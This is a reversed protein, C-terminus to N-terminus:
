DGLRRGVVVATSPANPMSTTQVLTWALEPEGANLSEIYEILKPYDAFNLEVRVSRDEPILEVSSPTVGVMASAELATLAEIWPLSREALMKRASAEYPPRPTPQYAPTRSAAQVRANLAAQREDAVTKWQSWAAATLALGCGLLWLALWWMWRPPRSRRKFDSRLLPKM